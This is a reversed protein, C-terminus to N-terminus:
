RISEHREESRHKGSRSLLGVTHRAIMLEEDTPVIYLPIRSGRRSILTEGSANAAPDLEAGLWAIGGLSAHGCLPQIKGAERQSCSPM